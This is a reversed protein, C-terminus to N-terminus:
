EETWEIWIDFSPTTITTSSLNVALIQSTGRLVVAQSPRTGFELVEVMPLVTSTGIADFKLTRITGVAAGLASPNATYARVTVTAAANASDHPVLTPTTSTGGTNAASRKVLLMNVKTDAASTASIGVQLIRVTKTASGSITFIDTSTTATVLGTVIASYTANTGDTPIANVPLTSQDSAIVVPVSNAMTNQGLTIASGSNDQLQAKVVSTNTLPAVIFRGSSDLQNAAQQGNTLTPLSTNFVGGTLYSSSGATGAAVSGIPNDILQLATIESTQNAATSQNGNPSLSVVAAPDTAVAATSAAKVATTNTGDTLKFPWANAVATPTGGQQVTWTGSQVAAISDTGSALTWTRGTTWTGSQTVAGIVNAGTPIPGIINLVNSNLSETVRITGTGVFSSTSRVRVHTMGTTNVMAQFVNTFANTNNATGPQHVYPRQWITGGDEAVEIVLTGTFSGSCLITVSQVSALAFVAASNATPTGLYFPQSNAGLVQISASDLATINQTAPATDVNVSQISDTSSLLNWTRGATWAGIQSAAVNLSDSTNGIRTGDTDGVINVPQEPTTAYAVERINPFLLLLGLILKLM